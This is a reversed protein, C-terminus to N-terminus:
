LHTDYARCLKKGLSRDRKLFLHKNEEEGGLTRRNITTLSLFQAFLIESIRFVGDLKGTFLKASIGLVIDPIQCVGNHKRRLQLHYCGKLKRSSFDYGKLWTIRIKMMMTM